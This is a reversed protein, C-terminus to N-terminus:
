EYFVVAVHEAYRYEVRPRKGILGHIEDCLRDMFVSWDKRVADESTPDTLPGLSHPQVKYSAGRLLARLIDTMLDAGQVDQEISYFQDDHAFSRPEPHYRYCAFDIRRQCSIGYYPSYITPYWSHLMAIGNQMTLSKLLPISTSNLQHVANVIDAKTAPESNQETLM